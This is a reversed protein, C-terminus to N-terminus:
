EKKIQSTQGALHALLNTTDFAWTEPLGFTAYGLEDARVATHQIIDPRNEFPTLAVGLSRAHDSM